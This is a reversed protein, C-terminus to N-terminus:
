HRRHTGLRTALVAAVVKCGSASVSLGAGRPLWHSLVALSCPTRAPGDQRVDSEQFPHSKRPCEGDAQCINRLVKRIGLSNREM